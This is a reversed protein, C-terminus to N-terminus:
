KSGGELGTTSSAPLITGKTERLVAGDSLEERFVVSTSNPNYPKINVFAFYCNEATFVTTRTSAPIDYFEVSLNLGRAATDMSLTVAEVRVPIAQSATVVVQWGNPLIYDWGGKHILSLTLWVSADSVIGTM